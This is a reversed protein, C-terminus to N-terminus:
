SACVGITCYSSVSRRRWCIWAISRRMRIRKWWRWCVCWAIPWGRPPAGSSSTLASSAPVGDVGSPTGDSARREAMIFALDFKAADIAMPQYGIGLGPM